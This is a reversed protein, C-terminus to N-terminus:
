SRKAVPQSPVGYNISYPPIDKTVVSGAGIIAGRGIRVGPLISCNMGIWVDSEITVPRNSPAQKRMPVTLDSYGHNVGCIVTGGAIMVYDGIKIGARPEYIHAGPGLSVERGIELWGKDIRISANPYIIFMEGLKLNGSPGVYIVSQPEMITTDPILVGDQVELTATPHIGKAIM